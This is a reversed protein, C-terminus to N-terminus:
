AVRQLVAAFFGDMYDRPPWTRCYGDEGIFRDPVNPHVLGYAPNERLFRSCVDENEEQELSCTSYVLLGGPKVVFAANALIRTQKASNRELGAADVRYRIEPNHAITGTGSCPADVLVANFSGASFPLGEEADYQTIHVNEASQRHCAAKLIEVRTTSIDGAILVSEPSRLAIDTTKSGPAACVDLFKDGPALEIARGVLQSGEDQFYIEGSGALNRLHLDIRDAFVCGPIHESREFDDFMRATEPSTRATFRFANRPRANNTSVLRATEEFGFRGIWKELLWRPHSGEFSLREVEDCYEFAPSERTARRLIANVFGAASSKRAAKALEVSENIAAHRPVRDLFLLQYLGIRLAFMIAIDIKGALNFHEIFRDLYYQRRLVGLTLEHCLRRDNEALGPSYRELLDSTNAGEIEVKRLIEYASRRAPSIAM